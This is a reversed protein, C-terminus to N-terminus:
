KHYAKHEMIRFARYIQETLLLGATDGSLALPSLSLTSLLITGLTPISPPNESPETVPGSAGIHFVLQSKGATMWTQIQDSFAPSTYTQGRRDLYIHQITPSVDADSGQSTGTQWVLSCSQSLRKKYELLGALIPAPLKNEDFLLTIKLM